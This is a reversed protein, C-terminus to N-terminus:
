TKPKLLELNKENELACRTSAGRDKWNAAGGEEHSIVTIFVPLDGKQVIKDPARFCYCGELLVGVNDECKFDNVAKKFEGWTSIM